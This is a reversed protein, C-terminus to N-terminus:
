KKRKKRKKPAVNASITYAQLPGAPRLTDKRKEFGGELQEWLPTQQPMFFSSAYTYTSLGLQTRLAEKMAEVEKASDRVTEVLGVVYYVIYGVTFGVVAVLGFLVIGSLFSNFEM